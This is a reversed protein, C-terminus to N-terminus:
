KRLIGRVRQTLKEMQQRKQIDGTEGQTLLHRDITGKQLQKKSSSIKGTKNEIKGQHVSYQTLIHVKFGSCRLAFGM